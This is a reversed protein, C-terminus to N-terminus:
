FNFVHYCDKGTEESKLLEYSSVRANARTPFQAKIYNMGYSLAERESVTKSAGQAFIFQSALLIAIVLSFRKM